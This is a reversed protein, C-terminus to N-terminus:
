QLRRLGCYNSHIQVFMICNERVPCYENSVSHLTAETTQNKQQYHVWSFTGTVTNLGNVDNDNLITVHVNTIQDDELLRIQSTDM